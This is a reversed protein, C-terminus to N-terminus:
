QEFSQDPGRHCQCITGAVNPPSGEYDPDARSLLTYGDKFSNGSCYDGTGYDTLPHPDSLKYNSNRKNSGFFLGLGRM